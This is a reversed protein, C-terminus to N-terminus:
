KKNTSVFVQKYLTRIDNDYECAEFFLWKANDALWVKGFNKSMSDSKLKSNVLMIHTKEGKIYPILFHVAAKISNSTQTTHNYYDFDKYVSSKNLLKVAKVLPLTNYVHYMLSDRHHFDYSSGDDHINMSLLQLLGNHCWTYHTDDKVFNSLYLIMYIRISQFNNYQIDMSYPKNNTPNLLELPNNFTYILMNIISKSFQELKNTTLDSLIIKNNKLVNDYMITIIDYEIIPHGCPTYWELFEQLRVEFDQPTNRGLEHMRQCLEDNRALYKKNNM